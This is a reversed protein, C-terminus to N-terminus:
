PQLSFLEGEPSLAYAAAESQGPPFVVAYDWAEFAGDLAQLSGTQTLRPRLSTRLIMAGLADEGTDLLVCGGGEPDAQQLARVARAYPARVTQSYLVERRLLFRATAQLPTLALIVCLSLAAMRLGPRRERALLLLLLADALYLNNLYREMGLLISAEEPPYLFAFALGLGASFCLNFGLLLRFGSRRAKALLFALLLLLVLLVVAGSLAPCVAEQGLIPRTFFARGYSQLIDLRYATFGAGGSQVATRLKEGSYGQAARNLWAIGYWLLAPLLALLTLWLKKRGSLAACGLAVLAFVLGLAKSLTLLMLLAAFGLPRMREWAPDSLAAYLALGFLVGLFADIYIKAYVSVQFVCPLLFVAALGLWTDLKKLREASLLPFFLSFLFLQYVLYLLWEAMETEGTVALYVREGFYQLLAMAPPYEPFLSRSAPDISLVDLTTMMKVVDGWHSFEDWAALLKGYNVCILFLYLACFLFFPADFLRRVFAQGERGCWAIVLAALLALLCFVVAATFGARLCGFLGFLLQILVIGTLSLPLWQEFRRQTLACGLACPCCLLVLLVLLALAEM